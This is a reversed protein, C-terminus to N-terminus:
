FILLLLIHLVFIKFAISKLIHTTKFINRSIKNYTYIAYVRDRSTLVLQLIKITGILIAHALKIAEQPM